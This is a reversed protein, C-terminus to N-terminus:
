GAAMFHRRAVANASSATRSCVACGSNAAIAGALAIVCAAAIACGQSPAAAAYVADLAAGCCAVCGAGIRVPPWLM